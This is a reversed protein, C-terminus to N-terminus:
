KRAPFPFISAQCMSNQHQVRHAGGEAQPMAEPLVASRQFSLLSVTKAELMQDEQKKKDGAASALQSQLQAVDADRKQLSEHTDAVEKQASSVLAETEKQQELLSAHKDQLAQADSPPGTVPTTTNRHSMLQLLNLSHEPM